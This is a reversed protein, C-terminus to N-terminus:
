LEVDQLRVFGADAAPAGEHERYAGVGREEFVIARNPCGEVCAPEGSSNQICLECKQIVHSGDGNDEAQM